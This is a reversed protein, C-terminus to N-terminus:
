APQLAAAQYAAGLLPADENLVIRIPISKLIHSYNGKELFARLFMGDQMKPLIKLAIGGAVYLGGLALARLALNGAESGYAAIWMDLADKCVRCKNGLANQTIERAPDSERSDFSAHRVSADLFEHIAVFGRGAVIAETNVRPLKKKLFRVLDIERDSAPSFDAEGGESPAVRYQKGDWFMMAEGLGTGAAILAQTAGRHEKGANLLLFDKPGLHPLGLAWAHLDNIFIVRELQLTNAVARQEIEWPMTVSHFKGEAVAGAGGIAAVTIDDRSVRTENASIKKLFDELVNEFPVHAYDRNIYRYQAVRKLGSGNPQFIALSCKTGGIDGALIM